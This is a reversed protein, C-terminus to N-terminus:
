KFLLLKQTSRTSVPLKKQFCALCIRKKHKTYPFLVVRLLSSCHKTSCFWRTTLEASFQHWHTLSDLYRLRWSEEAELNINNGFKAYLQVKLDGLVEQISTVRSELSKIEEKLSEQLCAFMLCKKINAFHFQIQVHLPNGWAMVHM